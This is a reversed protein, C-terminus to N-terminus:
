EISTLNTGQLMDLRAVMPKAEQLFRQKHQAALPTATPLKMTLPNRQVGAVRFEYHLHPGSALGTSGVYGIIQGQIVRAGRHLGKGFLSLHGYATSYQGNHQLTVLNGYGGQRGSFSVCGDAVAKVPTGTPAGYDIGKHARWRKLVPHFRAQTFGSTIRSFPLPSKLFAKRLSKGDPAYYGNRGKGDEFFVARYTRGQNNFEAALVRGTKVPVGHHEYSEYVVSFSDGRRLDRHFDIEGSFIEAMQDAVSDPIGAADTAGYLSTRVEGSKMSQRTQLSAQVSESRFGDSERELRYLNGARNLYRMSLLRGDGTTTAQVTYGPMLNGIAPGNGGRALYARAKEETVGLKDLLSSVTEGRGIRGERWFQEEEPTSLAVEPLEINHIVNIVPASNTATQPAIGFAAMGAFLPLTSMAVMWRLRIARTSNSPSQTM